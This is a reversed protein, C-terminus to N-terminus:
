PRAAAAAVPRAASRAEFIVEAFACAIQRYGAANAHINPGVPAPACMWTWQCIRAVNLPVREKPTLQVLPTFHDTRFRGSVDAVPVHFGRYITDLIGSFQGALKVSQRALPHYASGFLWVALFPDYYTMGYVSTRRGGAARLQALIKPLDARIAKFGAAVCHLDIGSGNLCGDINNAGIDITVLVRAGRHAKLFATAAAIQSRYKEPFPCGGKLMTTTTEGPCGLDTYKLDRDRSRLQAALDNTYGQSTIHGVGTVPNPQWGAALSDGLALYYEYRGSHESGSGATGAVAASGAFALVAMLVGTFVIFRRHRM